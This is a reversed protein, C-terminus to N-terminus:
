WGEGLEHRIDKTEARRREAMRGAVSNPPIEPAAKREAEAEEGLALNALADAIVVDGHALRAGSPDQSNMAASHEISGDMRRMFQLTEGMARDSFNYITADGIAARYEILLSTKAQPNLYMGYEDVRERSIKRDKFRRYLPPFDDEQTFRKVFQEGTPGSRDPVVLANNFFRALAIVFVAFDRPEMNPDAFEGYKERTTAEYVAAASNSAGTGASVDAGIIFRLEEAYKGERNLPKWLWLHGGHGAVFRRPQGNVVDYDLEGVLEPERCWAKRYATVAEVDFFQYDSGIYDIDLEQAIEKQSTARSCERDYWPSRLKGDAVFPYEDPFKVRWSKGTGKERVEVIGSWSDLLEVNGNPEKRYLGHAKKPHVSWHMRVIETGANHMLDYFANGVGRPTSNFIRCNTTDRTASSANYGATVEFAAYEDILVATRRDGRGVEGTTSEGDIISGNDKNELHMSTRNVQRPRMWRPQHKYLFDLKWFLSKSNGPKDVYDENRSVVMFSQMDYFEWLWEIVVLNIWSAGMDRSKEIGIDNGRLIADRIKVIAEDQFEYTVFPLVPEATQRPDYTYGFGNVWFLIDKACQARIERAASPDHAGDWILERRIDRNAIPDKPLAILSM